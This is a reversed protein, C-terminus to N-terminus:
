DIPSMLAIALLLLGLVYVVPRWIAGAQWRNGTQTNARRAATRTRLRWWGRSYLIGAAALIVIVELRLDWSRLAASLVPDM